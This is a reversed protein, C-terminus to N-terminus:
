PASVPAVSLQSTEQAPSPANQQADEATGPVFRPVIGNSPFLKPVPEYPAAFLFVDETESGGGGTHM